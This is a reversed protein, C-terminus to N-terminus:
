KSDRMIKDRLTRVIVRIENTHAEVYEVRGDLKIKNTNIADITAVDNRREALETSNEAVQIKLEAHSAHDSESWATMGGVGIGGSAIAAVILTFVPNRQAAAAVAARRSETEDGM